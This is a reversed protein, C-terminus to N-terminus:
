KPKLTQEVRGGTKAAENAPEALEKIRAEIMDSLQIAWGPADAWTNLARLLMTQVEPLEEDTWKVHIM